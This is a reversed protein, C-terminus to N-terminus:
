LLILGGLLSEVLLAHSRRLRAVAGDFGVVFLYPFALLAPYIFIAKMVTFVRYQYAYATIFFVSAYMASTMINGPLDVDRSSLGLLMKRSAQSLGILIMATPLLALVFIARGCYVVSRRTSVWNPPHADFHAFHAHGYIQSWLSTRHAPFTTTSYSLHPQSLLSFFRFTLFGHSVSLIGPLSPETKTFFFPRPQPDMNLTLPIGYRQWNQRFQGVPCMLALLPVVVIFVIAYTPMQQPRRPPRRAIVHILLALAVSPFTILGNTKALIGLVASATM